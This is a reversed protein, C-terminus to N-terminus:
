PHKGVSTNAGRPSNNRLWKRAEHLSRFLQIPREGRTVDAFADAFGRRAPDVVFAVSGRSGADSGGRLMVAIGEVQEKNLTSASGTVDIIKAYGPVNAAVLKKTNEVIEDATVIGRAVIVVLRDLPLIDMYIPM